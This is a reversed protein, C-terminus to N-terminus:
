ITGQAIVSMDVYDEDDGYIDLNRLVRQVIGPYIENEVMYTLSAVM